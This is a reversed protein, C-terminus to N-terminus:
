LTLALPLDSKINIPEEPMEQLHKLAIAVPTDGDFPVRGTVM